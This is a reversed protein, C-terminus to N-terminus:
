KLRVSSYFEGTFSSLVIFIIFKIEAHINQLLVTGANPCWVVDPLKLM